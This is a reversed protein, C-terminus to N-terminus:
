RTAGIQALVTRGLDTVKDGDLLGKAQLAAIVRERNLWWLQGSSHYESPDLFDFGGDAAVQRLMARQKETLGRALAAPALPKVSASM